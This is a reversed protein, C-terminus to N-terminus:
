IKLLFRANSNFILDLTQINLKLMDFIKLGTSTLRYPYLSGFLIKHPDLTHVAKRLIQLEYQNSTEIFINNNRNAVDICTYGYDFCGMHLFIFNIKSFKKAWFEWQQPISRAGIGVFVKVPKQVKEIISFIENLNNQLDPYYGHEFSNFEFMVINQDNAALKVSDICSPDKPNIIACGLLNDNKKTIDIINRTNKINSLNNLSGIVRYKINYKQIDKLLPSLEYKGDIYEIYSHIDICM